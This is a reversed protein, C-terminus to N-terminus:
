VVVVSLFPLVNNKECFAESFLNWANEIHIADLNVHAAEVWRLPLSHHVWVVGATM